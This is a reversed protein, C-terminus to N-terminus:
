SGTTIRMKSSNKRNAISQDVTSSIQPVPTSTAAFPLVTDAKKVVGKVWRAENAALAAAAMEPM